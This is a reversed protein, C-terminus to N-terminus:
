TPLSCDLVYPAIVIPLKTAQSCIAGVEQKAAAVSKARLPRTKQRWVDCEFWVVVYIGRRRGTRKLYRDRLQRKADLRVGANWALKVELIVALEPWGQQLHGVVVIEIDTRRQDWQITVERHINAGHRTGPRQHLWTHYSLGAGFRRPASSACRDPRGLGSSDTPCGCSQSLKRQYCGCNDANEKDECNAASDEIELPWRLVATMSATADRVHLQGVPNSGRSM